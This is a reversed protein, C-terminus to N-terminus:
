LLPFQFFFLINKCEKSLVEFSQFHFVYPISVSILGGLTQPSTAAGGPSVVLFLLSSYIEIRFDDFYVNEIGGLFHRLCLLSLKSLKCPRNAM